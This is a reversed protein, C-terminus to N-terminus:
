PRPTARPARQEHDVAHSVVAPQAPQRREAKHQRSLEERADLRMRTMGKGRREPFLDLARADLRGGAMGLQRRVALSRSALAVDLGAGCAQDRQLRGAQGTRPRRREVGRLDEEGAGQRRDQRV